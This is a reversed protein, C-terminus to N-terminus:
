KFIAKRERDKKIRLHHGEPYREGYKSKNYVSPTQGIDIAQYGELTLDYGLVTATPGLAMLILWDKEYQKISDMIEDYVAFAHRAPAYLFEHQAVNDFLEESFFFRSEKGVVFLVKRGEWISKHLAVNKEFEEGDAWLLGSINGSYYKKPTRFLKLTRNGKRIIFKRWIRGLGEFSVITTIGVLVKDNDSNLVQNLRVILQDDLRQYDPHHLGIMLSYEGDNYRVLSAGELIKEITEYPTATKPYHEIFYEIKDRNSNIVWNDFSERISKRWKKIVILGTLVAFIRRGILRLHRMDDGFVREWRSVKYAM